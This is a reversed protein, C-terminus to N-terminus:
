SGHSSSDSTSGPTGASLTSTTTTSTTTTTQEGDTVSTDNGAGLVESAATESGTTDSAEGSDNDADGILMSATLGAMVCVGAAAAGARARRAPHRRRRTNRNPAPNRTTPDEPAM